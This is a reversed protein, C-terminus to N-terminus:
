PAYLWFNIFRDSDPCDAKKLMLSYKFYNHIHRDTPDFICISFFYHIKRSVVLFEEVINVFCLFQILQEPLM